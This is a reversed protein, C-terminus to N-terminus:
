RRSSRTQSAIPSAPSRSAQTPASPVRCSRATPSTCAPTTTSAGTSTSSARATPRGMPAGGLAHVTVVRSLLWIPNDLFVGGIEEAVAKSVNRVREFYAKSGGNKKWDVQLGGNELHMVGEPIDRGMGLLPLFGASEACDGLVDVIENAIDTDKHSLFNGALKPLDPILKFVSRPADLLQLM